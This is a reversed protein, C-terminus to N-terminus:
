KLLEMVAKTGSPVLRVPMGTNSMSQRTPDVGVAQYVTAMFEAVTVPREAVGAGDPNTSGIVQGGKIKAGALVVSFSKPWHDRGNNVNIKPTRGFEGMWVILTSDLLKREVLDTLLAAFAPDLVGCRQQTIKFNDGHTDWGPLTVEVVPVGAEVLRRALLCSQGFANMGYADRLAKKEQALDFAKLVAKRMTAAEDKNAAPFSEQGPVPPLAGKDAPSGSDPAGVFLPGYIANLFGPGYFDGMVFKPPDVVVYRPVNVKPGGLERGLLCGVPPYDNQGDYQYGTHMLFSGRGHDGESSTLSRIVALHNAVKALKPLHESFKVGKIATDIAKTPGGNAHEPKPDFTEFQSPGGGMWMIIVHMGKAPQEKPPPVAAALQTALPTPLALATPAAGTAPDKGGLAAPLWAAAALLGLLLLGGLLKLPNTWMTRLAGRALTIAQPSAGCTGGADAAFGLAAGSTQRLLQVSLGAAAGRQAALATVLAAASLVVGGRKLHTRLLHRARKLRSNIADPTTGLQRAAESQTKGELYCLVVTSRYHEPLRELAEDLQEQLEEQHIGIEDQTSIPEHMATLRETQRDSRTRARLALRRAVQFLWGAVSEAHRVSGAKRALVLFAAQFADEADQHHHLVRRCVGLVMPGHRRVLEAFASEEGLGLFRDLLQRDSHASAASRCALQRLHVTVRQLSATKM